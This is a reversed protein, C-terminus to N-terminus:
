VEEYGVTVAETVTPKTVKYTGGTDLLVANPNASLIVTGKDNTLPHFLGDSMLRHVIVNEDAKLGVADIVFTGTTTFQTASALDVIATEADIVKIIAM